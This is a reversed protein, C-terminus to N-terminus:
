RDREGTLTAHVHDTMGAVTRTELLVRISLEADVLEEVRNTIKIAHISNGGLAAFDEHPGVSDRGLTEAWIAAIDRELARRRTREGRPASM